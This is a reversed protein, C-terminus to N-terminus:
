SSIAEDREESWEFGLQEQLAQRLEESLRGDEGPWGPGPYNYDRRKSIYLFEVHRVFKIDPHSLEKKDCKQCIYDTNFWSMTFGETVEDCRMCRGDLEQLPNSVFEKEM